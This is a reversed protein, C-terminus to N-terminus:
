RKIRRKILIIVFLLPVYLYVTYMGVHSVYDNLTDIRERTEFCLSIFFAGIVVFPLVKRHTITLQQKLIRSAAWIALTINPMIVILWTAIGLYEFREIFPLEVIKWASLTPYVTTKLQGESYFIFTILAVLVYLFTTSAIALHAFKQSKQPEQIFPYFVLLLEPGLFSLTMATVAELQVNISTDFLPLLNRFTAFELTAFATFFLFFPIVVGLFCLGVVVRFGHQVAYFIVLLMTFSLAWTPLDPFVWIQVVEIYTRLVTVSLCLLYLMFLFSLVAGIYKGFISRHIHFIDRKQDNLISYMMWIALHYLLGTILVSIWARYGAAEAIYRAFGLVGVGVQMSHIVYFVLFAPILLSQNSRTSM